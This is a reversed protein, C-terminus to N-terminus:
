PLESMYFLTGFFYSHAISHGQADRIHCVSMHVPCNKYGTSCICFSFPKNLKVAKVNSFKTTLHRVGQLLPPTDSARYFTVGMKYLDVKCFYDYPVGLFSIAPYSHSPMSHLCHQSKIQIKGSIVRDGGLYLFFPQPNDLLYHDSVGRQAAGSCVKKISYGKLLM